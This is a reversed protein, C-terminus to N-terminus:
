EKDPLPDAVILSKEAQLIKLTKEDVDYNKAQEYFKMGARCFTKSISRVSVKIKDKAM